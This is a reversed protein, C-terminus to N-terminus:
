RLAQIHLGRTTHVVYPMVAYQFVYSLVHAVFFLFLNCCQSTNRRKTLTERSACVSFIRNVIAETIPPDHKVERPARERRQSSQNIYLM